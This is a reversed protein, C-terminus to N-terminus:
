TDITSSSMTQVDIRHQIYVECASDRLGWVRVASCVQTHRTVLPRSLPSLFHCRERETKDALPTHGEWPRRRPVGACQANWGRTEGDTLWFM